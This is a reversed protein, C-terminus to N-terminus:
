NPPVVGRSKLPFDAVKDPPRPHQHLSQCDGAEVIAFNCGSCGHGGGGVKIPSCINVESQHVPIHFPCDEPHALARPGTARRGHGSAMKSWSIIVSCSSSSITAMSSSAMGIVPPHFTLQFLLPLIRQADGNSAITADNRVTETALRDAAAAIRVSESGTVNIAVWRTSRGLHIWSSVLRILSAPVAHRWRWLSPFDCRTTRAPSLEHAALSWQVILDLRVVISM